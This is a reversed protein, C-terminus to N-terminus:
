TTPWRGGTWTASPSSGRSDALARYPVDRDAYIARNVARQLLVRLPNVAIAVAVAGVVSVGDTRGAVFGTLLGVTALYVVVAALTLAAYVLTRALVVWTSCGTCCCRWAWAAAAAECRIGTM